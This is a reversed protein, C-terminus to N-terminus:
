CPAGGRAALGLAPVCVLAQLVVVPMAIHHNTPELSMWQYGLDWAQGMARRIEPARSVVANVTDAYRVYPAELKWLYQGFEVLVLNLLRPDQTAGELLEGLSPYGAVATLWSDFDSLLKERSRRTAARVPRGLPLPVARRAAFGPDHRALRSKGFSVGAM